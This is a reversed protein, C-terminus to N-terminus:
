PTVSGGESATMLPVGYSVLLARIEDADRALIADLRDKLAKDQKRVGMAIDFQFLLPAFAETGTIPVV